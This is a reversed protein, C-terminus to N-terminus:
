EFVIEWDTADFDDFYPKWASGVRRGFNLERVIWLHKSKGPRYRLGIVCPQWSARRVREGRRLAAKAEEWSLGTVKTSGFVRAARQAISNM